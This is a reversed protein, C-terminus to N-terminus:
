FIATDRWFLLRMAPKMGDVVLQMMMVNGGKEPALFNSFSKGVRSLVAGAKRFIV